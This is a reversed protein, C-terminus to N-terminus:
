KAYKLYKGLKKSPQTIRRKLSNAKAIISRSRRRQNVAPMLAKQELVQNWKLTPRIQMVSVNKLVNYQFIVLGNRIPFDINTGMCVPVHMDLPCFLPTSGQTGPPPPTVLQSYNDLVCANARYCLPKNSYGKCGFVVPSCKIDAMESCIDELM